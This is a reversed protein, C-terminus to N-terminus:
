IFILRQINPHIDVTPITYGFERHEYKIEYYKAAKSHREKLRGIRREISIPDNERGNRIQKLLNTLEAELREEVKNHIASEKTKRVESKCLVYVADGQGKLFIQM